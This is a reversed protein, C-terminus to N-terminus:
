KPELRRIGKIMDFEEDYSYIAKSGAKKMASVIFADAYKINHEKYIM